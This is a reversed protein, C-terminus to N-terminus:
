HIIYSLEKPLYMVGVDHSSYGLYHVPLHLIPRVYRSVNYSIPSRHMNTNNTHTVTIINTFTVVTTSDTPRYVGIIM